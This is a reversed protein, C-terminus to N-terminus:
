RKLHRFKYVIQENGESDERMKEFYVEMDMGMHLSEFDETVVTQVQCGEDMTIIALVYPVPVLAGPVQQRVITYTAVKGRGGLAVEETEQKGCNLCILRTPVFYEGCNRCRSAVLYPQAGPEEPMKFLGPRLPVRKKESKVETM